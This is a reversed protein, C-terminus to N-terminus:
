PFFAVRAICYGIGNVGLSAWGIVSDPEQFDGWFLLIFCFIIASWLSMYLNSRLSGIRDTVKHNALTVIVCGVMGLLALLIGFLNIEGLEVGVIFALGLTAMSAFIWQNVSLRTNGMLHEYVALSMPYMYIILIVLSINTYIIAGYISYVFLAGGMGAVLSSRILAKPLSLKERLALLTLLLLVTAVIGRSFAITIVDSGSEHAIKATTPMIVIGIGSFVTFAVGLTQKSILLGM